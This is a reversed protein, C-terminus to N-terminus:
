SIETFCLKKSDGPIGSKFPFQGKEKAIMEGFDGYNGEMQRKKLLLMPTPSQSGAVPLEVANAPDSAEPESVSHCPIM